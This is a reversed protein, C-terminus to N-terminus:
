LRCVDLCGLSSACQVIVNAAGAGLTPATMNATITMIAPGLDCQYIPALAGMAPQSGNLCMMADIAGCLCPTEQGDHACGSAFIHSLTQLCVQAETPAGGTGLVSSCAAPASGTVGECTAGMVGNVNMGTPDLCGMDMICQLCDPGRSALCSVTDSTDCGGGGDPAADANGVDPGGAEPSVTDPPNAETADDSEPSDAAVDPSSGDVAGADPTGAEVSVDPTGTDVADATGDTARRDAGADRNGGDTSGTDADVALRGDGGADRPGDAAASEPQAERGSDGGGASSEQSTDVKSDLPADAKSADPVATGGAGGTGGGSGGAGTELSVDDGGGCGSNPFGLAVAALFSTGLAIIQSRKM